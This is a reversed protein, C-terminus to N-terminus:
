GAARPAPCRGAAAVGVEAHKASASLVAAAWSNHTVVFHDTLYLHDEADVIICRATMRGVYEVAKVTRRPPTSFGPRTEQWRQEKRALRFPCVGIPLRMRLTDVATQPVNPYLNGQDDYLDLGIKMPPSSTIAVVNVMLAIDQCDRLEIPRRSPPDRGSCRDQIRGAWGNVLGTAM